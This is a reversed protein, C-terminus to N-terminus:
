KQDHAREGEGDGERRVQENATHTYGDSIWEAGGGRTKREDCHECLRKAGNMWVYGEGIHKGAHRMGTLGQSVAVTRHTQKTADTKFETQKSAAYEGTLLTSGGNQKSIIVGSM